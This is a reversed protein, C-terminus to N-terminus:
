AAGNQLLAIVDETEQLVTNFYDDDLTGLNLLIIYVSTKDSHFKQYLQEYQEATMEQGNVLGRGECFETLNFKGDTLEYFLRDFTMGAVFYTTGGIEDFRVEPSLDAGSNTMGGDFLTELKGDHFRYVAQCNSYGSTESEAFGCYLEPTGDRDLDILRVVSVGDLTEGDAFKTSVRGKGCQAILQEVQASYAKFMETNKYGQWAEANNNIIWDVSRSLTALNELGVSARLIHRADEPELKGNRDADAATFADTGERIDELRISARLALRADASTVKGDGDVDGAEHPAQPENAASAGNEMLAIVAETEKLVDSFKDQSGNYPHILIVADDGELYADFEEEYQERSMKRGDIFFESAWDTQFNPGTLNGDKLTLFSRNFCMGTVFYTIGDKEMFWVLPSVDSGYNTMSGDYLTEIGNAATYRYVAERNSMESTKKEAYGCYLEPQGDKDLDILRVVSLGTLITSAYQGSGWQKIRGEGGKEILKQVQEYYAAYMERNAYGAWVQANNNLLDNLPGTQSMLDDLNANFANRAGAAAAGSALTFACLAALLIALARQWKPTKATKM